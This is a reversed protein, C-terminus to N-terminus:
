ILYIYNAIQQELLGVIIWVRSQILYGALILSLIFPQLNAFDRCDWFGQEFYVIREEYKHLLCM